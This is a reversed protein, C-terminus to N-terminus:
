GMNKIESDVQDLQGGPHSKLTVGLGKVPIQVKPSQVQAQCNFGLIINAPAHEVRALSPARRAGVMASRSLTAYKRGKRMMPPDETTTPM